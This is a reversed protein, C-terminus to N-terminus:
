VPPLHLADIPSAGGVKSSIPLLLLLTGVLIIFVFSIVIVRAPPTTKVKEGFRAKLESFSPM